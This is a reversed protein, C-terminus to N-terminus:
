NIVQEMNFLTQVDQSDIARNYIRIEDIYGNFGDDYDPGTRVGSDFGIRMVENTNVLTKNEGSLEFDLEGNIYCSTTGNEFIVVVHYWQNLQLETDSLYVWPNVAQLRIKTGTKIPDYTDLNFGQGLSGIAKDIIRSGWYKATQMNFWVSISFENTFHLSSDDAVEIYDDVGDFFYASNENGFRDESLVAGSVLGNNNYGSLDVATGSFDYHAVLGLRLGASSNFVIELPKNEFQLLEELTFTLEKMSEGDISVHFKYEAHGLPVVLGQIGSELLITYVSDGDVFLSVESPSYTLESLSDNEVFVSIFITTTEVVSYNLSSYALDELSASATSVVEITENTVQESGIEFEHPLPTSVLNEFLSGSKPTAYIVSDDDDLVVFETLYYNGIELLIPDSNQGNLLSIKKQDIILSGSEDEVSIVISNGEELIQSEMNATSLVQLQLEGKSVEEDTSCSNFLIVAFLIILLKTKM